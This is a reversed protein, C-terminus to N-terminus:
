FNTARYQQNWRGRIRGAELNYGDDRSREVKRSGLLVVHLDTTQTATTSQRYVEEKNSM